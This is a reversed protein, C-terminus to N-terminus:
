VEVGAEERFITMHAKMPDSHMNKAESIVVYM